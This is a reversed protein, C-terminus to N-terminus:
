QWQPESVFVSDGKATQGDATYNILNQDYLTISLAKDNYRKDRHISFQANGTAIDISHTHIKLKQDTKNGTPGVAVTGEWYFETKGPNLYDQFSIDYNDGTFGPFVLHLTVATQADQGYTFHVHRSDKIRSTDPPFPVTPSTLSVQGSNEVYITKIKDPTDKLRISVSGSQSTTGLIRDFVVESGGSLNIGSIELSDSLKHIEDAPNDRSAYSTGKFLTYQDPTSVADFYVGYRSGGELATGESALTKNQALRLVNIIEETSNNLDTEKQFFRYSPIAIAILVAMIGIIILIEVLSFSKPKGLKSNYNKM